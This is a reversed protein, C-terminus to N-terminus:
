VILKTQLTENKYFVYGIYGWYVGGLDGLPLGPILELLVSSSSAATSCADAAASSDARCLMTPMHKLETSM